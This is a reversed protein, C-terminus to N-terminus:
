GPLISYQEIFANLGKVRYYKNLRVFCPEFRLILLQIELSLLQFMKSILIQINTILSLELEKLNDYSREFIESYGETNFKFMNFVIRLDDGTIDFIKLNDLLYFIRKILNFTKRM